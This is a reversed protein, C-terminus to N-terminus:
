CTGTANSVQIAQTEVFDFVHRCSSLTASDEHIILAEAFSSVYNVLLARVTALEQSVKRVIVSPMIDSGIEHPALIVRRM